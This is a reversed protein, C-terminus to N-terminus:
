FFRSDLTRREAHRRRWRDSMSYLLPIRKSSKWVDFAVREERWRREGARKEVTRRQAKQKQERCDILFWGRGSEISGFCVRRLCRCRRTDGGRAKWWWRKDWRMRKRRAGSKSRESARTWAGSRERNFIAAREVRMRSLGTLRGTKRFIAIIKEHMNRKTHRRKLQLALTAIQYIM